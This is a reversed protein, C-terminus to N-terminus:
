FITSLLSIFRRPHLATFTRSMLSVHSLAMQVHPPPPLAKFNMTGSEIEMITVDLTGGGFDFVLLNKVKSHGLWVALATVFPLLVAATHVVPACCMSLHKSACSGVGGVHVLVPAEQPCKHQRTLRLVRLPLPPYRDGQMVGFALAAATPENIIRKVQTCRPKPPEIPAVLGRCILSTEHALTSVELGAIRGADRTAQEWGDTGDCIACSSRPRPALRAQRQSDNFYAPVTIVAKRVPRGIFEEAVQLPADLHLTM